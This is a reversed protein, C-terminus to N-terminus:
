LVRGKLYKNIVAEAQTITYEEDGDLLASLIDRHNEFRKSKVLQAKTFKEEADFKNESANKTKEDSM